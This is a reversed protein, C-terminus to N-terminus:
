RYADLLQILGPVGTQDSIRLRPMEYRNDSTQVAGNVTTVARRIPTQSTIDMTLENYRGLPYALAVPRVGTHYEISQASGLLQYILGDADIASLDAHTKTHSEVSMGGDIMENIQEWTIYGDLRRDAFESVIFFVGTYGADRLVPFATRYHDIYGDDFSIIIPKDPLPTGYDMASNLQAFTITQYDASKLYAIHDRFQDPSVTLNRRIDDADAPLDGVYHYMLIPVYMRRLTGDDQARTTIVFLVSLLAFLTIAHIHRLLRRTM